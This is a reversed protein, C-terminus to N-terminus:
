HPFAPETVPMAVTHTLVMRQEEPYCHVTSWGRGYGPLQSSADLFTMADPHGPFEGVLITNEWDRARSRLEACRASFEEASLARVQSSFWFSWPGVTTTHSAPVPSGEGPLCAVTEAYVGGEPTWVEAQHSAGLLRLTLHGGPVPHPFELAGLVPLAPARDLFRLDNVSSDAFPVDLDLIM